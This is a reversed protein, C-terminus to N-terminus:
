WQSWRQVNMCVLYTPLPAPQRRPPLGLPRRDIPFMFLPPLHCFNLLSPALPLSNLSAKKMNKWKVPEQEPNPCTSFIYSKIKGGSQSVNLITAFPIIHLDLHSHQYNNVDSIYVWIQSAKSSVVSLIPQKVLLDHHWSLSHWWNASGWSLRSPAPSHHSLLPNWWFLLNCMQFHWVVYLSTNQARYIM